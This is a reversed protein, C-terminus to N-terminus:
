LQGDQDGTAHRGLVTVRVSDVTVDGYFQVRVSCSVSPGHGRGEFIAGDNVLRNPVTQVGKPATINFVSGNYSWIDFVGGTGTQSHATVGVRSWRTRKDGEPDALVPSTVVLDALTGNIKGREAGGIAYRWVSGDTPCVFYVCDQMVSMSRVAAANPTILRTWAAVGQKGSQDSNLLSLCWLKGDRAALMYGRLAACHDLDTATTPAIPGVRDMRDAQEGDTYWVKGNAEIFCVSGTEPWVAAAPKHGLNTPRPLGIGGRILVPSYDYPKGRLLVIGDRNTASTTFVLLGQDVQQLGVIQAEPTVFGYNFSQVPHFSDIVPVGVPSVYSTWMGSPYRKKAVAGSDLSKNVYDQIDGKNAYWETDALCLVNGWLAGVNARPMKGKKAYETRYKAEITAPAPDTGYQDTVWYEPFRKDYVMAAMTTGDHYIVIANSVSGDLCNVLMGTRLDGASGPIEVETLFRYENSSTISVTTGDSVKKGSSLQTWGSLAATTTNTATRSPATNWWLSGDSKLALLYLGSVTAFTRVAQVQAGSGMGSLGISQCEWQSRLVNENEFVFGNLQQWQRDTYDGSFQAENVGGSFDTLVVNEAQVRKAM